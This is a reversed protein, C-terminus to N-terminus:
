LVNTKILKLGCLKNLLLAVLNGEANYSTIKYM